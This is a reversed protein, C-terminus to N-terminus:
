LLNLSSVTPYVYTIQLPSHMEFDDFVLANLEKHNCKFVTNFNVRPSRFRVVFEHSKLGEPFQRVSGQQDIKGDFFSGSKFDNVSTRVTEMGDIQVRCTDIVNIQRFMYSYTSTTKKIEKKNQNTKHSVSNKNYKKTM